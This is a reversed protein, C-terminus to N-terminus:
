TSAARVISLIGLVLLAALLALFFLVAGALGLYGAEATITDTALLTCIGGSLISLLVYGSVLGAAFGRWKFVFFAIAALGAILAAFALGVTFSDDPAANSGVIFVAISAATALSPASGSPGWATTVWAMRRRAPPGPYPGGPPASM